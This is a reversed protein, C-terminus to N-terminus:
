MNPNVKRTKNKTSPRDVEKEEATEPLAKGLIEPLEIGASKALEHFGPLSKTIDRVFNSVTSDGDGSGGGSILTIKGFEINSVIESQAKVLEPLKEVVLMKIAADPDGGTSEVLRKFGEAQKELIEFQGAAEGALVAKVAEGEAQGKLIDEQKQAEAEIVRKEKAIKAPVIIAAQQKAEESKAREEEARVQAKYIEEQAQSRRTEEAQKADNEAKAEAIRRDSDSKAKLVKSENEGEIAKADADAMAVRKDKAANAVAIDREKDADAIAIEREKAANTIAIERDKEADAIAIEKDKKANAIAIEKDKDAEAVGSEGFKTEEAVKINAQQIAKAAAEQGLADIYGSSDKIDSINVNILKLGIKKLETEVGDKVEKEFNQRDSNIEEIDLTAIIARLQGLIINEANKEIEAKSLGLLRETANVLVAPETSIAITFFSPVDVRINQKSLAGKLNIDISLPRLDLFEYQQIIPWVFTAGGHITKSSQDGGIKGYKVLVKDSPCTKYRRVMAIVMAFVFLVAVSILILLYM